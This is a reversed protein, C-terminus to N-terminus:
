KSEKEEAIIHKPYAKDVHVTNSAHQWRWPYHHAGGYCASSRMSILLLGYSASSRMSILLPARQRLMRQQADLDLTTREATPHATACRSSPASKSCCGVSLLSYSASNRMPFITREELLV